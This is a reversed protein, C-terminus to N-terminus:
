RWIKEDPGRRDIAALLGGRSGHTRSSELRKVGFNMPSLIKFSLLESEQHRLRRLDFWNRESLLGIEGVDRTGHRRRHGGPLAGVLLHRPPNNFVGVSRHAGHHHARRGVFKDGRRHGSRSNFRGHGYYITVGFYGAERSRFHQGFGKERPEDCEGVTGHLWSNFV